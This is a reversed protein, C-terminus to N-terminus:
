VFINTNTAYKIWICTSCLIVNIEYGGNFSLYIHSSFLRHSISEFSVVHEDSCVYRRDFMKYYKYSVFTVTYSFHEELSKIRAESIMNESTYSRTM